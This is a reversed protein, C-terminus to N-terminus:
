TTSGRKVSTSTTVQCYIPEFPPPQVIPPPRAFWNMSNHMGVTPSPIPTHPLRSSAVSEISTTLPSITHSQLPGGTTSCVFTQPQNPAPQPLMPLPAPRYFGAPSFSDPRPQQQQNQLQQQQNQYMPTRAPMYQSAASQQQMMQSREAFTMPTPTSMGMRDMQNTVQNVQHTSYPAGMNMSANMQNPNHHNTFHQQPPYGPLMASSALNVSQMMQEEAHIRRRAEEQRQLELRLQEEANRKREDELRKQEELKQREEEERDVVDFLGGGGGGSLDGLLGSSALSYKTKTATPRQQQPAPAPVNSSNSGNNTDDLPNDVILQGAAPVTSSTPQSPGAALPPDDDLPIEGFLDQEPEPIDGTLSAM